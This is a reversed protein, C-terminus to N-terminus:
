DLLDSIISMHAFGDLNPSEQPEVELRQVCCLILDDDRPSATVADSLLLAKGVPPM